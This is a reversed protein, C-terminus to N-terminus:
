QLSLPAALIMSAATQWRDFTADSVQCRAAGSTAIDSHRQVVLGLRDALACAAIAVAPDCDAVVRVNHAGRMAQHLRDVLGSFVEPGLESTGAHRMAAFLASIEHEPDFMRPRDDSPPPVVSGAAPVGIWLSLSEVASGGQQPTASSLGVRSAFRCVTADSRASPALHGTARLWARYARDLLPGSEDGIDERADLAQAYLRLYDVGMEARTRLNSVLAREQLSAYADSACADLIRQYTGQVDTPDITIGGGHQRVREGTAGLASAVVPIGLAWAESLTHCYTEPWISFIGVFSPRLGRMIEALGEREYRGHVTGIQSADDPALGVFHLELRSGRDLRALERVFAYGKSRAWVNGLVVIRVREGEVPPEAYQGQEGFDRGHEIVNMKRAVAEGFAAEFRSAAYPSTTIVAHAGDIVRAWAKRWVDVGVGRLRGLDAPWQGASDCDGLGGDCKGACYRGEANVLNVTPCVSYFDHLSLLYRLGLSEVVTPAIRPHHMLHRIHVLAIRWRQLVFALLNAYEESWLDMFSPPAALTVAFLAEPQSTAANFYALEFGGGEPHFIFVEYHECLQRCLDLTTMATGGESLFHLMILVRPKLHPRLAARGAPSNMAAVLAKRPQTLRSQTGEDTIGRVYSVYYPHDAMLRKQSAAYIEDRGGLERFSASRRHFVFAADTVLHRWGAALARMALDNEEGYGRPYAAVDFVGVEDILGRSIWMCFGNGTGVPLPSGSAYRFARAVLDDGWAAPMRNERMPEPVSFVGANNSIATVTGVRPHEATADLLAELWGPTVRTDSNLLVVDGDCAAIGRNVAETYGGNQALALVKCRPRAAARALFPGVRRDTSGDDVILVPVDEHVHEFLANVAEVVDEFANYVPMVVTPWRRPRRLASLRAWFDAGLEIVGRPFLARAREDVSPAKVDLTMVRAAVRLRDPVTPRALVCQDDDLRAYAQADVAFLAVSHARGDLLAPPVAVSFRWRLPPQLGDKTTAPLADDAVMEAVAQDDIFVRMAVPRYPRSGDVVWGSLRGDSVGTLAGQLDPQRMVWDLSMPELPILAGGSTALWREVNLTGASTGDRPLDFLAQTRLGPQLELRITRGPDAQLVLVLGELAVLPLDEDVDIRCAATENDDQSLSARIRRAYELAAGQRVVEEAVAPEADTLPTVRGNLFCEVGHEFIAPTLQLPLAFAHRGDGIGADKLDGRPLDAVGEAVTATGFRIRVLARSAPRLLDIGWGNLHGDEVSDVSFRTLESMEKPNM